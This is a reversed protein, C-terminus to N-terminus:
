PPFLPFPQGPASPFFPGAFTHKRPRRGAALGNAPLFFLGPQSQNSAFILFTPAFAEQSQPVPPKSYLINKHRGTAPACTGSPFPSFKGGSFKTPAKTRFYRLAGPSSNGTKMAPQSFPRGRRLSPPKSSGDGHSGPGTTAHLRRQPMISVRCPSVVDRSSSFSRGPVTLFM